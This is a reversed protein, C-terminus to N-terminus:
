LKSIYHSEVFFSVGPESLLSYFVKGKYGKQHLIKVLKSIAPSHCISLTLEELKYDGIFVEWVRKGM